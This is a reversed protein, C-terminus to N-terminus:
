SASRRRKWVVGALALAGLIAACTAPEPIAAATFVLDLSNVGGVVSFSGGGLANSFGGTGNGSAVNVNFVSGVVSTLDGTNSVLTWSQNLSNDFHTADGNVDPGTGSLSWLNINFGGTTLGSLNLGGSSISDFGTGVAGTADVVQWNYNGGNVWTLGGTTLVGPSNGPSLTQGTGISLAVGSLNTGGITGSTFTLTGTYNQTSNNKFTGGNLTVNRNLGTTSNQYDFTGGTISVGSSSNIAGSGSVLLTGGSVTTAGTYTNAGTLTFIRSGTKTFAMKATTGDKIIGGFTFDANSTAADNNVTLTATGTGTSNNTVTQSAATGATTLGSIQQDYSVNTGGTGNNSLDFTASKGTSGITVITGTPLANNIGVQLSGETIATSGSYTNAATLRLVGAGAKALSNATTGDSIVGPVTFTANSALVTVTRTAGAATGLSVTGGFTVNKGASTQTWDGNWVQSTLGTLGGGNAINGAGLITGGNIVLSGTGLMNPSSSANSGGNLSITGSNLTITGSFSANNAAGSGFSVNTNIVLGGSGFLANSSAFAYGSAGSLTLAQAAGITIGGNAALVNTSSNTWTQSAGLAIKANIVDAGAGAAVTLGSGLTNGNVAAANLTITNNAGGLTVAATGSTGTGTFNLSNITYDNQISNTLNIASNATFFVNSTSGPVGSDVASAPGDVFNSAGGGSIGSEWTSGHAGTWYANGTAVTTVLLQEAITTNNLLAKSGSVVTSTGLSFGGTFTSGSAYTILNYTGNALATGPLATLNVTAGGVNLAMKGSNVVALSDVSSANSEFNLISNSGATTSGITLITGGSAGQVTLTGIAGDTLDITGRTAATTGGAVTVSGGTTTGIIGTTTGNGVGYLTGGGNVAVATAGLSGTLNLRGNTLTTQSTYTSAGALTLTGTGSYILSATVAPASPNNQAAGLITVNGSGSFTTGRNNVAPDSALTFTPGGFVLTNGAGNVTVIANGTSTQTAAGNFRFTSGTGLLTETFVGSFSVAGTGFTINGNGGTDGTAGFNVGGLTVPMVNAMTLASGSGNMLTGGGNSAPTLALAGTGLATTTRVDLTGATLTVGGTAATNNGSLILKGAANNLTTLGTYSNNGNLTLTGSGTYGLALTTASPAVAGTVTTNGVGNFTVTEGGTTNASTYSALTLSGGGAIANAITVTGVATSVAGKVAGTSLSTNESGTFNLTLAAATSTPTIAGITMTKAMTVGTASKVNITSGSASPAIGYASSDSTKIFATSADGRLSLVSTAGIAIVSTSGFANAGIGVLTGNTTTTSGTYSSGSGSFTLTGSGSYSLSNGAVGAGNAIPGNFIINGAGNSILINIPAVNASSLNLGGLVLTNGATPSSLLGNSAVAASGTYTLPGGFTLTTGTGLITITRATSMSVAGTGLNLNNLSTSGSAGFTFDGGITVAPNNTPSTIAAGSTNNLTTGGSITFAGSGLAGASNINLTGGSIATTGTYSNAGSLTWAGTGSKILSTAGSSSDVINGAIEGTGAASGALTLTKAGVGGATLNSTFKLNGSAGSQTITAGGTTGALNIVKDSTEGTGTYTLAGAVTTAGINITGNTGLSSSATSNGVTNVSVTGANINVGGTFTNAGNLALTGAGAKTIGTAVGDSVVGALTLTNANATITRSGATSGLSVTGALSLNQTGTFAFNNNATISNTNALVLNSVSSNLTGGNIILTAANGGLATTSGLTLTGATLTTVGVYNGNAGNLGMAATASNQTVTTVSQGLAGSITLAGTGASTNSITVSSATGVTGGINGALLFPTSFNGTQDSAINITSAGTSTAGITGNVTVGTSGSVISKLSITRTEAGAVTINGGITASTNAVAGTGQGLTLDTTTILLNANVIISGSGTTGIFSNGAGGTNNLTIVSSNASNITWSAGGGTVSSRITGLTVDTDLDTTVFGLFTIAATDGPGQATTPAGNTWTATSWTNSGTSTLAHVIVAAQACPVM